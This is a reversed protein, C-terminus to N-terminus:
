VRAHDYVCMVKTHFYEGASGRPPHFLGDAVHQPVDFYWYTAGDAFLIELVQAAQDYGVERIHSSNRIKIREM